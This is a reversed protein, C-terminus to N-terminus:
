YIYLSYFDNLYAETVTSCLDFRYIDSSAKGVNVVWVYSNGVITYESVTYSKEGVNVKLENFPGAKTVVTCQTSKSSVNDFSVSIINQSKTYQYYYYNKSYKSTETFRIDFCYATTSSPETITFEWVYNGDVKVPNSCTVINTSCDSALSLKIKNIEDTCPTTVRFILKNDVITHTVNTITNESDPIFANLTYVESMVYESGLIPYFRYSTKETPADMTVTWIYSDGTEVFSLAEAQGGNEGIQTVMVGRLASLSRTTEIIFTIKDDVISQHVSNIVGQALTNAYNSIQVPYFDNAYSNTATNRYDILLDVDEEPATMEITWIYNNGSVTYKDTSAISTNAADDFSLKVANIFSTTPTTVKVTVKDQDISYSVDQITSHLVGEYAGLSTLYCNESYEDTGELKYDVVIKAKASPIDTSISWVCDEGIQTYESAYATTNEEVTAINIKLKGVNAKAPTTINITLKGDTIHPQVNSIYTVAEVYEANVANGNLDCLVWKQTDVGIFSSIKTPCYNAVVSDFGCSLVNGPNEALEFSYAGNDQAVIYYLTDSYSSFGVSTNFNAENTIKYRGDSVYTVSFTQATSYDTTRSLVFSNSSNETNLSALTYGNDLAKIIYTGDKVTRSDINSAINQISFSTGESEDGSRESFFATVTATYLGNGLGSAKYSNKSVTKNLVREGDSNYIRLKYSTAGQLAEWKIDVTSGTPYLDKSIEPADIHKTYYINSNGVSSGGSSSNGTYGSKYNPTVYAAIYYTSLSITRYKVANGWNGDIITVTGKSADASVVIGIHSYSKYKGNVISPTYYSTTSGSVLPKFLMLDGSSPIYGSINTAFHYKGINVFSSVGASTPIVSTPIGAQRACWSVFAACWPTSPSGIWAGYKTSGGSESYGVQTKAVSVLDKVQNGTNSHTNTYGKSYASAEMVSFSFVSLCIAIVLIISIVRKKM